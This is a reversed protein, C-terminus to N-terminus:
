FQLNTAFVRTMNGEEFHVIVDCLWKARVQGFFIQTQGSSVANKNREAMPSAKLLVVISSLFRSRFM